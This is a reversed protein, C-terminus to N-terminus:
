PKTGGFTFSVAEGEENFLILPVGCFLGWSPHWQPVRCDSPECCFTHPMPCDVWSHVKHCSRCPAIGRLLDPGSGSDPERGHNEGWQGSSVLGVACIGDHNASHARHSDNTSKDTGVAPTNDGRAGDQNALGAPVSLWHSLVQTTISLEGQEASLECRCTGVIQVEQMSWWTGWENNGGWDQVTASANWWEDQGADSEGAWSAPPMSFIARWIDNIAQWDSQHDNGNTSPPGDSHATPSMSLPTSYASYSARSSSSQGEEKSDSPEGQDQPHQFNPRLLMEITVVHRQNGNCVIPSYPGGECFFTQIITPGLTLLADDPHTYPMAEMDDLEEEKLCIARIAKPNEWHFRDVLEPAHVQEAPEWSDHAQSYGRWKLLYQLKKRCGDWRSDLVQEVKYEEKGEVLDPPPEPFNAGHEKMEKYPSLLSTHFIPHVKKQKWQLPLELHFLVPNIVDIVKFLGYWKPALKQTPHSMCLNKGDLWVLDGEKYPEYARWGKQQVNCKMVMKQAKKIAEQAWDRTVLLWEKCWTLDPLTSTMKTQWIKPTFGMLLDFPTMKTVESPWANYIFQTLPLLSAWNDQQFNGYVCLYQELWQNTRKSQSDMQPHYASSINQEIHLQKCLEQMFKGTFRPDQDLIVKRPVGFHPFVHQMYLQAIGEGTVTKLCPLFIAAKSCDHNTITLISDYGQSLPLDTILDLAITMFLPAQEKLTIPMIPIKPHMTGLKTSQCTACGQVYKMVIDRQHTWWYVEKVMQYTKLIGPHSASPHDHYVELIKEFISFHKEKGRRPL